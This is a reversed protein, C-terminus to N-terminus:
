NKLKNIFNKLIKNELINEIIINWIDLQYIKVNRYNFGLWIKLINNM